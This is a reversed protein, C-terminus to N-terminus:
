ETAHLAKVESETLEKGHKQFKPHIVTHAVKILFDNYKRNKNSKKQGRYTIQVLKGLVNNSQMIEDRTAGVVFSINGDSTEMIYRDCKEKFQSNDFPQIAIIFGTIKQGEKEWKVMQETITLVEGNKELEKFQDEYNQTM